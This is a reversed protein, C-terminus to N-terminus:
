VMNSFDLIKQMQQIEKEQTELINLALRRTEITISKELLQKSTQLAMSHHEIMDLLYNEEDVMFQYKIAFYFIHMGFLTIIILLISPETIGQIFVMSFAMFISNYFKNLSFLQIHKVKSTMVFPMIYMQIIFSGLFMSLVMSYM